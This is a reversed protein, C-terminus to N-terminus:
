SSILLINYHIPDSLCGHSLLSPSVHLYILLLSHCLKIYHLKYNTSQWKQYYNKAVFYLMFIFYVFLCVDFRCVPAPAHKSPCREIVSAVGASTREIVRLHGVTSRGNKLWWGAAPPDGSPSRRSAPRQGASPRGSFGLGHVSKRVIEPCDGVPWRRTIARRFAMFTLAMFFSFDGAPTGGNKLVALFDSFWRLGM